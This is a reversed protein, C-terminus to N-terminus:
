MQMLTHQQTNFVVGVCHYCLNSFFSIQFHIIKVIEVHNQHNIKHLQSLISVDSDNLLDM